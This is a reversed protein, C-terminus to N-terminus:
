RILLVTGTKVSKQGDRDTVEVRYAYNGAPAPNGNTTGDWGETDTETHFLAEGWRNFVTLSFTQWFQGKIVFRPNDNDDNPTFATPAFIKPTRQFEYFNSKSFGVGSGNPLAIVRYRRYPSDPDPEYRSNGGQNIQSVVNGNDDYIEVIYSAVSGPAFPSDTTWAIGASSKSTLWITCAAASPLSEIGCANRYVVQYCYSQASTNASPDRFVTNNNVTGVVAFPGGPKDARSIILTYLASTGSGTPLLARVQAQGDDTVDVLLNSPAGPKDQNQGTVCAPASTVTSAGNNVAATLGYCYQINCQINDTDTYSATAKNTAGTLPLANSNRTLQYGRFTGSGAYPLWSVVNRKDGAEAKLVLSCVEESRTTVGCDDTMALQFCQTQIADTKVTVTQGDVVKQGTPQYTGAANRQQVDLKDQPGGQAKITITGADLTALNTIVPTVSPATTANVVQSSFRSCSGPLDSFSYEIRVILGMAPSAYRHQLDAPTIASLSKIPDIIGDGWTIQFRDFRTNALDAPNLTLTVQRNACTKASFSVPITPLVEIVRCSTFGTGSLSGVQLITYSGPNSYTFQTQSVGVTATGGKFNYDYSLSLAGVATNTVSVVMGACGRGSSVTFKPASGDTPCTQAFTSTCLGVVGLLLMITLRMGDLIQKGSLALPWKEFIIVSSIM